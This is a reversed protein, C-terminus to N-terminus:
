RPKAQRCIVDSTGVSTVGTPTIYMVRIKVTGPRHAVVNARNPHEAGGDSVFPEVSAISPDASTWVYYGGPHPRGVALLILRDGPEVVHSTPTVTVAVASNSDGPETGKNDAIAEGNMAPVTTRFHLRKFDYEGWATAMVSSKGGSYAEVHEIHVGQFRPVGEIQIFEVNTLEPQTKEGPFAYWGGGRIGGGTEGVIAKADDSVRATGEKKWSGAREDYRMVLVRSRPALKDNNPMKFPLPQDFTVARPSVFFYLSTTLGDDLTVPVRENLVYTATFKRGVLTAPPTATIRVGRLLTIEPNVDRGYDDYFALLAGKMVRGEADLALPEGAGLPVGESLPSVFLPRGLSNDAGPLVDIPYSADSWTYGGSIIDEGFVELRQDAGPEVK